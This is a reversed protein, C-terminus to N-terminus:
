FWIHWFTLGIKFDKPFFSKSSVKFDPFILNSTNKFQFDFFHTLNWFFIQVMGSGGGGPLLAVQVGVGQCYWNWKESNSVKKNEFYTKSKSMNSKLFKFISDSTTLMDIPCGTYLIGIYKHIQLPLNYIMYTQFPRKPLQRM